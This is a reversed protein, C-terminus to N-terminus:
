TIPLTETIKNLSKNYFELISSIYPIHIQASEDFSTLNCNGNTLIEEVIDGTLQSQFLVRLQRNEWRWDNKSLAMRIEGSTEDIIFISNEGTITIVHPANSGDRANIIIDSGNSQKGQLIGTFEIFGARKSMQSDNDLCSSDFTFNNNDNLFALLDVFHIGNCALGWNGGTLLFTLKENPVINKKIEIYDPFVRRPCNVWAKIKNEHLIDQVFKYDRIKQFLIKEFIITKINKKAVLEQTVLARINSNTAIICLDISENLEDISNLFRISKIFENNEVQEFREKAIALSGISPDVVDINTAINIKKLGQLHRSGLQGAGILAINYTM